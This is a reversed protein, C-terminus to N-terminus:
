YSYRDITEESIAENAEELERELKKKREAKEQAEKERMEEEKELERILQRNPHLQDLYEVCYGFTERDRIVSETIQAAAQKPSVKFIGGKQKKIYTYAADWSSEHDNGGDRMTCFIEAGFSSANVKTTTFTLPAFIGLTLLLIKKQKIRQM